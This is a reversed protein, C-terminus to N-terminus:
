TATLPPDYAHLFWRDLVVHRVFAPMGLLATGVAQQIRGVAWRDLASSAFPAIRESFEPVPFTQIHEQKM